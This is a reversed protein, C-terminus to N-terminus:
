RRDSSRLALIIQSYWSGDGVVSAGMKRVLQLLERRTAHTVWGSKRRELLEGVANESCPIYTFVVQHFTRLMYELFGPLDDLYELLGIAVGVDGSAADINPLAANFDFVQVDPTQPYLV